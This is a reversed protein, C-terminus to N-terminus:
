GGDLHPPGGRELLPRGRESRWGDEADLYEAALSTIVKRIIDVGRFRFELDTSTKGRDRRRSVNLCWAPANIKMERYIGEGPQTRVSFHVPILGVLVMLASTCAPDVVLSLKELTELAEATKRRAASVQQPNVELQRFFASMDPRRPREFIFDEGLNPFDSDAHRYVEHKEFGQARQILSGAFDPGREEALDYLLVASLITDKSVLLLPATTSRPRKVTARVDQDTFDILVSQSSTSQAAPASFMLALVLEPRDFLLEPLSTAMKHREKPVAIYNLWNYPLCDSHKM